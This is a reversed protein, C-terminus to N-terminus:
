LFLRDPFIGGTYASLSSTPLLSFSAKLLADWWPSRAQRFVLQERQHRARGVTTVQLACWYLPSCLPNATLHHAMAPHPIQIAGLVAPLLSESFPLLRGKRFPQLAPNQPGTFQELAKLIHNSKYINLQCVSQEPVNGNTHYTTGTIRSGM